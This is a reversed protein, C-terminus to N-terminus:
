INEPSMNLKFDDQYGGINCSFPIQQIYSSNFIKILFFLILYTVFFHSKSLISYNKKYFIHSVCQHFSIITAIPGQLATSITHAPLPVFWVSITSQLRSPISKALIIGPPGSLISYKWTQVSASCNKVREPLGINSKFLWM